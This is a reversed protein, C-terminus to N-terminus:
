LMNTLQIPTFSLDKSNANRKMRHAIASKMVVDQFIQEDDNFSEQDM